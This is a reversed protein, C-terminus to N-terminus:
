RGQDVLGVARYTLRDGGRMVFVLHGQGSLHQYAGSGRVIRWTGSAVSYGNTVDFWTIRERWILTGRNGVFTALPNNVDLQGGDQKVENHTWCCWSTSGSDGLVAGSTLPTLKMTPSTGAVFAIRQRTAAGGAAALGAMAAAVFVIAATAILRKHM